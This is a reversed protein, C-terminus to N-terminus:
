KNTQNHFERLIGNLHFGIHNVKIAICMLHMLIRTKMNTPTPSSQGGGSPQNNRNLNSKKADRCKTSYPRKEQFPSGGSPIEPDKGM